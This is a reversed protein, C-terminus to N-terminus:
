AVCARYSVYFPEFLVVEDGPNILGLMTAAIAETCGSTVTIEAAPDVEPALEGAPGAHWDAIAAALRPVGGTPAYQNHGAEIAEAFARKVFDPGDTDPFGQSLNVAGHEAALRSMEAFITIGFPALRDATHTRT